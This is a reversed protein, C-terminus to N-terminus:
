DEEVNELKWRVFKLPVEFIESKDTNFKYPSVTIMAGEVSQVYMVNMAKKMAKLIGSGDIMGMIDKGELEVYDGPKINNPAVKKAYEVINQKYTVQKNESLVFSTVVTHPIVLDGRTDGAWARVNLITGDRNTGSVYLTENRSEKLMSKIRGLYYEYSLGPNLQTLKKIDIKIVDGTKSKM